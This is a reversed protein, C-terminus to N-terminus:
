NSYQSILEVVNLHQYHRAIDIPKRGLADVAHATNTDLMLLLLAIDQRDTMCAVHLPTMREAGDIPAAVDIKYSTILMRVVAPNNKTIAVLLPSRTDDEDDSYPYVAGAGIIKRVILPDDSEVAMHLLSSPGVKKNPDAHWDLLIDIIQPHKYSIALALFNSIVGPEDTASGEADL